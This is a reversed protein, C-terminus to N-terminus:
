GDTEALVSDLRHNLAAIVDADEWMVPVTPADKRRFTVRDLLKNVHARILGRAPSLVHTELARALSAEATRLTHECFSDRFVQENRVEVIREGDTTELVMHIRLRVDECHM